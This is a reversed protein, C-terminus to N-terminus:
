AFGKATEIAATVIIREMDAGSVYKRNAVEAQESNSVLLMASPSM